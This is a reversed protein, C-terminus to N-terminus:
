SSALCICFIFITYIIFILSFSPFYLVNIYYLRFTRPLSKTGENLEEGYINSIIIGFGLIIWTIWDAYRKNWPIIEIIDGKFTHLTPKARKNKSSISLVPLYYKGEQPYKINFYISEMENLRFSKNPYSSIGDAIEYDKSDNSISLDCKYPEFSGGLYKISYSINLKEGCDLDTKIGLTSIEFKPDSEKVDIKTIQDIDQYEDDTRVITRTSYTGSKEPTINYWYVIRGKKGINNSVIKESDLINNKEIFFINNKKDYISSYADDDSSLKYKNMYLTDNDFEKALNNPSKKNKIISFSAIGKTLDGANEPDEFEREIQPLELLNNILYVNSINFVKLSPDISEMIQIDKLEKGTLLVEVKVRLTTNVLYSDNGDPSIEKILQIPAGAGEKQGVIQIQRGADRSGVQSAPQMNNSTQDSPKNFKNFMDNSDAPINFSYTIPSLVILIFIIMVFLSPFTSM